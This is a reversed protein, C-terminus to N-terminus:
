KGPKFEILELVNQVSMSNEQGAIITVSTSDLQARVLGVYPVYWQTTRVFVTGSTSIGPITVTGYMSYDNTVVLANPFSGAPVTVSEFYGDTQFTLDIPANRGFGVSRGGAPDRLGVPEEFLYQAQWTHKWGNQAFNPYAPAYQGSQKYTNVIGDLHGSLLMSLVYLPFNDIEGDQCVVLENIHRGNKQDFMDVYININGIDAREGVTLTYPYTEEGSSVLYEWQNGTVLPVLPNDCPGNPVPTSTATPEPTSTFTATPLPTETPPVSTPAATPTPQAPACSSLLLALSVIFFIIKANM